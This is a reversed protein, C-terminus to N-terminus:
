NLSCRHSKFNGLPSHADALGTRIASCDLPAREVPRSPQAQTRRRHTYRKKQKKPSPKAAKVQPETKGAKAAAKPLAQSHTLKFWSVAPCRFAIPIPGGTRCVGSRSREM